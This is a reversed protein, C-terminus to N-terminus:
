VESYTVEDGDVNKQTMKYLNPIPVPNDKNWYARIKVLIKDEFNFTLSSKKSKSKEKSSLKGEDLANSLSPTTKDPKSNSLNKTAKRKKQSKKSASNQNGKNEITLKNRNSRKIRTPKNGDFTM